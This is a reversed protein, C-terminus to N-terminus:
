GGLGKRGDSSFFLEGAENLFPYAENGSTNISPGLNVPNSWYDNNWESYYLDSGGFGDPMDSAFYIRKGDSTLFPTTINYWENNFRMERIKTWEDKILVAQFIGLKNRINEVDHLRAEGKINRSYYITDWTKSFSAPGENYDTLLEKSFLRIQYSKSSTDAYYMKFMGGNEKTSYKLASGPNQDSCFVIGNKYFSPAFENYKSSSFPSVKVSYTGPQSYVIQHFLFSILIGSILYIKM